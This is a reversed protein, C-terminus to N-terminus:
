PNKSSASRASLLNMLLRSTKGEQRRDAGRKSHPQRIRFSSVRNGLRSDLFAKRAKTMKFTPKASKLSLDLSHSNTALTGNGLLTAAGAIDIARAAHRAAALTDVFPAAERKRRKSREGAPLDPSPSSGQSLSNNEKPFFGESLSATEKFASGESLSNAAGASRKGRGDENLPSPIPVPLQLIAPPPYAPLVISGNPIIKSWEERRRVEHYGFKAVWAAILLGVCILALTSHHGGEKNM